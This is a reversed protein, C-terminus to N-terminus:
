VIQGRERHMMTWRGALRPAWGKKRLESSTAKNRGASDPLPSFHCKWEMTIMMM